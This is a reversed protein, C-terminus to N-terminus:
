EPELPTPIPHDIPSRRLDLTWATDDHTRTPAPTVPTRMPAEITFRQSRRAIAVFRTLPQATYARGEPTFLRTGEGRSVALPYRAYTRCLASAEGLQIDESNM